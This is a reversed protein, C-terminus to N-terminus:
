VDHSMSMWQFSDALRLPHITNLPDEEVDEGVSLNVCGACASDPTMRADRRTQSPPSRSRECPHGALKSVTM